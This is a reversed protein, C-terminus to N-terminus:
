EARIGEVVKVLKFTGIHPHAAYLIETPAGYEVFETMVKRGLFRPDKIQSYLKGDSFTGAGGEGFQVNSEPTLERKRWLDWTDKTRERVERGRELVIPKFGMQALALAAFIGCPGFGVVVPRHELDAPAQGVPKWARYPTS